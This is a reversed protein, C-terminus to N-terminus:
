LETQAEARQRLSNLKDYTFTDGENMFGCSMDFYLNTYEGDLHGSGNRAALVKLVHSGNESPDLSLERETKRRIISISDIDRAIKDSDAITTISDTEAGSRNQQGIVFFPMKTRVAEDHLRSTIAGLIQYENATSLAGIDPLKIYDYIVMAQPKVSVKSNYKMAFRRIIPVVEEISMGSISEYIIPKGQILIEAEKMRKVYEHSNVWTGEEVSEYPVKALQAAMRIMQMEETLETDLILTPTNNFVAARLALQLALQSKGQKMRAFVGNVSGNRIKGFARQWNPFGLDLGVPESGVLSKVYSFVKDSIPTLEGEQQSGLHTFADFLRGEVGGLMENISGEFSVINNSEDLLTKNLFRRVSERKITKAEILLTEKGVVRSLIVDLTDKEVKNISYGLQNASTLCIFEDIKEPQIEVIIYKLLEYIKRHNQDIFDSAAVKGDLEFLMKPTTCIGSLVLSENHTVDM